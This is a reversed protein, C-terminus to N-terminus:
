TGLVRQVIKVFQRRRKREPCRRRFYAGMAFPDGEPARGAQLETYYHRRMTASIPTGDAFTAYGYRWERCKALENAKLEEAYGRGLEATIRRQGAEKIERGRERRGTKQPSWQSYHFFLLPERQPTGNTARNRWAGNTCNWYGVNTGAHRLVRYDAFVAPILNLWKQDVYVSEFEDFCATALRAALWDIFTRATDGRRLGLCGGNFVGYKLLPVERVKIEGAERPRLVHPSLLISAGELAEFLPDLAGYVRIDSDLFLWAEADTRDMM